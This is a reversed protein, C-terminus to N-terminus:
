RRATVLDLREQNRQEPTGFGIAVQDVATLIFLYDANIV